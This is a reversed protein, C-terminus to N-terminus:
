RSAPSWPKGARNKPLVLLRPADRSRTRATSPWRSTALQDLTVAVLRVYDALREPDKIVGTTQVAVARVGDGRKRRMGWSFRRVELRLSPQVMILERVQGLSELAVVSSSGPVTASFATASLVAVALLPKLVGGQKWDFLPSELVGVLAFSLSHVVTFTVIRYAMLLCAILGSM